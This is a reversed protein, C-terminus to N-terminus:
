HNHGHLGGANTATPSPKSTSEDLPQPDLVAITLRDDTLYKKAVAQLQEPTIQNIKDIFQDILRWSLGLTELAGIELAQNEMSDKDFVRDAIVQAKVRDLEAKSVPKKKLQEIQDLFAKQLQQVTHRASPTGSMTFLDDYKSFMSYNASASTAIAQGRIIEKPFRSSNGQDLIAALVELAYPEWEDNATLLSPTNYGMILWPLKAPVKVVLKRQGKPEVSRFDKLKTFKKPKVPGFYKKALQYVKQPDVDGVVVVIANNPGYWSNYWQRVDSDTMNELDDMWGIVPHHYPNSLFAAARFREYTVMHPNDDTRMRREEMVVQIEKKFEKPDLILNQMRDSELQFSVKLNDASFVQYYATFDNSTFANHKGGNNAVIKSFEGKGHKHTGKFMMHEVVHSIGTIGRPENASGVRYWVQSVVVPARHDPKVYLKLGNDLTFEHVKTPMNSIAYASFSFISLFIAFCFRLWRSRSLNSM